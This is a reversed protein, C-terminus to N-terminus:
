LHWMAAITCVKFQEMAESLQQKYGDMSGQEDDAHIAATTFAKIKHWLDSLPADKPVLGGEEM